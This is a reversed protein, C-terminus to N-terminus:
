AFHGDSASLMELHMKKVSYIWIKIWIQSSNTGLPGIIMIEVSSWILVWRWDPLLDNCSSMMLHFCKGYLQGNTRPIWQDGTFEGCLPWHRPAKINEKIQTQIFSQTFLWSAPSKLFIAGMIVDTYHGSHISVLSGYPMLMYLFIVTRPFLNRALSSIDRTFVFVFPLRMFM